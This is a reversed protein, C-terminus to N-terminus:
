TWDPDEWVAKADFRPQPTRPNRVPAGGQDDSGDPRPKERYCLFSMSDPVPAAFGIMSELPAIAWLRLSGETNHEVLNVEGRCARVADICALRHSVPVTFEVKMIPEIVIPAAKKAAERFALSAAFQFAMPNSDIEHYSGDYLFVKLDVVEHGALIGGRAADRIADEIPRIYEDPIVGGRIQNIFALGSGSDNPELRIKVHGYNGSGGTQRIYKGEAEAAECITECYVVDLRGTDIPIIAESEVRRCVRRLDAENAGRVFITGSGDTATSIAEVTSFASLAAHLYAYDSPDIPAVPLALIPRSAPM